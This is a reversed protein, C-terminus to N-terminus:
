RSRRRRSHTDRRPDAPGPARRTPRGRARGGRQPAGGSPAAGTAAREGEAPITCACPDRGLTWSPPDSAPFSEVIAEDVKADLCDDAVAPVDTQERSM